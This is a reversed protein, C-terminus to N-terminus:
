VGELDPAEARVSFPTIASALWMVLFVAVIRLGWRQMGEEGRRAAIRM